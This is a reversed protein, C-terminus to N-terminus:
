TARYTPVEADEVKKGEIWMSDSVLDDLDTSRERHYFM